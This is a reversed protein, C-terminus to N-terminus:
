REDDRVVRHEVGHEVRLVLLLFDPLFVSFVIILKVRIKLLPSDTFGFQKCRESEGFLFEDFSVCFKKIYSFFSWGFSYIM